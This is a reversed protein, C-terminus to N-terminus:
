KPVGPPKIPQAVTPTPDKGFYGDDLIVPYAKKVDEITKRALEPKLKGEIQPKAEDFDKAKREDVRILHYGFQSKVPESIQGIPLSFAAQEFPAVMQGHGFSGLSGGNAGSGTDDSEAKAIAAFDGGKVIKERLDKAKALSEADTLDKGSKSSAQSGKFSILIHSAKVQEFEAKHQDFYAHLAADDVKAQKLVESALLNDVQLAMIQKTSPLQDIKRRRAEAALSEMEAYQEAFKRKNPGKAQGQAQEPLASVFGEFQSKTIKRDGITIVVPDNTKAPAAAPKATAPVVKKPTVVAAAPKAASVAPKVPAPTQGYAVAAACLPLALYNRM